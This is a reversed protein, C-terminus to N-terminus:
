DTALSISNIGSTPLRSVSTLRMKDPVSSGSSDPLFRFEGRASMHAAFRSRTLFKKMLVGAFADCSQAMLACALSRDALEKSCAM